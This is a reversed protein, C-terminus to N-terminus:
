QTSRLSNQQCESVWYALEDNNLKFIADKISSSLMSEIIERNELDIPALMIGEMDNDLYYNLPREYIKDGIRISMAYFHFLRVGGRCRTVGVYIEEWEPFELIAVYDTFDFALDLGIPSFKHRLLLSDILEKSIAKGYIVGKGKSNYRGCYKYGQGRVCALVNAYVRNRYTCKIESCLKLILLIVCGFLILYFFEVLGNM